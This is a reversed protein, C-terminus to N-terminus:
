AILHSSQVTRTSILCDFLISRFCMLYSEITTLLRSGNQSFKNVALRKCKGSIVFNLLNTLLQGFGFCRYKLKTTSNCTTVVLPSSNKSWATSDSLIITRKLYIFM